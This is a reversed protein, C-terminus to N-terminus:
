YGTTEAPLMLWYLGTPTEVKIVEIKPSKYITRRIGAPVSDGPLLVRDADTGLPLVWATSGINGVAARVGGNVDNIQTYNVGSRAFQYVSLSVDTSVDIADPSSEGLGRASAIGNGGSPCCAAAPAAVSAMLVAAVLAIRNRIRVCM